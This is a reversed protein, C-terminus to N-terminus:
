QAPKCSAACINYFLSVWHTQYLDNIGGLSRDDGSLPKMVTRCCVSSTSLPIGPWFTGPQTQRRDSSVSWSTKHSLSCFIIWKYERRSTCMKGSYCREVKLWVHPHLSITKGMDRYICLICIYHIHCDFTGELPLPSTKHFMCEMVAWVITRVVGPRFTRGCWVRIERVERIFDGNKGYPVM